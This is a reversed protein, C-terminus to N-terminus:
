RYCGDINKPGSYSPRLPFGLESKLAIDASCYLRSAQTRAVQVFQYPTGLGGTNRVLAYSKIITKAPNPVSDVIQRDAIFAVTTMRGRYRARAFRISTIADEDAHPRDVFRDVEDVTAISGGVRVTIVNYGWANGNERWDLTISGDMGDGAINRVPNNGARLPIPAVNSLALSAAAALTM